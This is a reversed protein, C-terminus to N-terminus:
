FIVTNYWSSSCNRLALKLPRNVLADQLEGQRTKLPDVATPLTLDGADFQWGIAAQEIDFYHAPL